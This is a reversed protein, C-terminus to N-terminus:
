YTELRAQSNQKLEHNAAFQEAYRNTEEYLLNVIDDELFTKVTGFPDTGTGDPLHVSETGTIHERVLPDNDSFWENDDPPAWGGGHGSIPGCGHGSGDNDEDNDTKDDINDDSDSQM